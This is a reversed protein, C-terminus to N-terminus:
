HQQPAPSGTGPRAGPGVSQKAYGELGGFDFCICREVGEVWADHGAPIHAADGAGLAVEEGDDMRVRMKGSTFYLDHAV